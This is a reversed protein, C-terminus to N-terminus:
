RFYPGLDYVFIGVFYTVTGVLSGAIVAFALQGLFTLTNQRVRGPLLFCLLPLIIGLVIGTGDGLWTTVNGWFTWPINKWSDLIAKAAWLGQSSRIRALYIGASAGMVVAAMWVIKVLRGAHDASPATYETARSFLRAEAPSAFGHPSWAMDKPTGCARCADKSDRNSVGCPCEWAM